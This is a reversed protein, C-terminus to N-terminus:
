RRGRRGGGGLAGGIAGVASGALGALGGSMASGAAKGAQSPHQITWSLGKMGVAALGENTVDHIFKMAGHVAESLARQTAIVGTAMAASERVSDVKMGKFENTIFKRLAKATGEPVKGRRELVKAMGIATNAAEDQAAKPLKKIDDIMGLMTVGIPRKQSKLRKAFDFGKDGMKDLRERQREQVRTLRNLEKLADIAPQITEDDIGPIEGLVKASKKPGLGQAALTSAMAFAPQMALTTGLGPIARGQKRLLNMPLPRGPGMGSLDAMTEVAPNSLPGGTFPLNPDLFATLFALPGGRGAGGLFMRGLAGLGRGGAAGATAVAGLGRAGAAGATRVAGAGTRAAQTIGQRGAQTAGTELAETAGKGFVVRAVTPFKSAVAQGVKPFVKQVGRGALGGLLLDGIDPIPINPLPGPLNVNDPISPVIKELLDILKALLKLLETMKQGLDIIAGAVDKAAEWFTGFNGIQESFWGQLGAQGLPSQLNQRLDRIGGIMDNVISRGPGRGAGIFTGILKGIEKILKWIRDLDKVWPALADRTKGINGTGSAADKFFDQIGRLVDLVFPKAAAAINTFLRAINAFTRGIMPTAQTMMDVVVSLSRRFDRRELIRFFDSIGKQIGGGPGGKGTFLQNTWRAIRPLWQTSITRLSEEMIQFITRQTPKTLAKYKETLADWQRIVGPAPGEIEQFVKLAQQAEKSKAGNEAVATNYADWATKAEGLAASATSVAPAILGIATVLGVVGGVGIAGAGVTATALVSGLAGVVAALSEIIPIAALMLAAMVGWRSALSAVGTTLKSVFSTTEGIGAGVAATAPLGLNGIATKAQDRQLAGLQSRIVRIMALVQAGGELEVSPNAQVKDLFELAATLKGVDSEASRTANAVNRELQRMSMRYRVETRQATRGSEDVKRNLRTLDTEAKRSGVDDITRGLKAVAEDAALAKREIKDLTGSARDILRFTGEVSAAM